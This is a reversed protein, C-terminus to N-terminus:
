VFPSTKKYLTDKREGFSVDRAKCDEFVTFM